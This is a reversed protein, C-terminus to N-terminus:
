VIFINYELILVDKVDEAFRVLHKNLKAIKPTIAPADDAPYTDEANYKGTQWRQLQGGWIGGFYMYYAGDTDEFVANAKSELINNVSSDM